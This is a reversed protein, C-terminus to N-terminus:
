KFKRKCVFVGCVCGGMMLIVLTKMFGTKPTHVFVSRMNLVLTFVFLYELITQIVDWRFLNLLSINKLRM